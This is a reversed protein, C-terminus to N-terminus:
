DDTERVRTRPEASSRPVRNQGRGEIEVIERPTRRGAGDDPCSVALRNRLDALSQWSLVYFFYEQRPGGCISLIMEFVAGLVAKGADHNTLTRKM